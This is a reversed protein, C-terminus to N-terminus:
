FLISDSVQQSISENSRQFREGVHRVSLGTVCRYLFIALQEEVTLHRSPTVGLALLSDVLAHFVHKHVGLECRIREPHGTLLERVWGEGSLASTHYPTKNYYMAAYLATATVAATIVSSIIIDDGDDTWYDSSTSSSMSSLIPYSHSLYKLSRNHSTCFEVRSESRM